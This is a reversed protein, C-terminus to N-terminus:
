WLVASDLHSFGPDLRLKWYTNNTVWSEKGSADTVRRFFRAQHTINNEEMVRRRDRQLQEIQRKQAEAAPVNGEELYRQDPRLRTDTSPLVRRLEPTLENLELAFQTFGYSREHDRPMPDAHLPTPVTLSSAQSPYGGLGPYGGLAPTVGWPPRGPDKSAKWVCHGPAPGRHLGEHWKGALREVATGSRSLVAGQVENAGAGWYRAKCFTLKCHYSADRTNRILVEGYHEIWRPGSLVNHICTTVKNWEYHDGTRPLQVNVTGMPVIELSKGWFKNKWRMDQWFVFNDSEAHCASIPPHHSVQESIFRFGRDPRVCEYTEGLVPNFPKSGARYYTSAYASVAFAAVYVLRQRPDRARSARDLLESYELEECLRQLTNLPENLQVPLAVRSLDKGVSSRLLGWLSVDGSPAPPAPLRSRRRPDPGPLELPPELPPPEAPVGPREAGAPCRATPHLRGRGPSGRGEASSDPLLATGEGPEGRGTNGKGTDPPPAAEAATRGERVPGTAFGGGGAPGMRQGTGEGTSGTGTPPRGPGGPEAAEECVGATVESICSEDESPENESSSASLFVECADFFETHSDALSVISRNSLQQERGKAPLADPEDPHLSAFSDLTTDSSVSLSHFRRLGPQPFPSASGLGGRGTGQLWSPASLPLPCGAGRQSGLLLVGPGGHERVAATGASGPRPAPCQRHLAQRMEELRAREAVLAAVVSSLSGHVKQALVWFSRQLQSYEPPVSFPLQSQSPELYRSLNPVSGHLRGVRGITDDKAFSQTCWIKTARRGKKPRETAASPQSGSILPASPIRHLAELHQLMGTLEQLKAQCESLEASCRELGESDKLWANVKDRSSALTSLAPASGSPLIRTWQGQTSTGTPGGTPCPEPREGHHHTCLSSVWSSFAEPSKIKLHYINDETDLDVRQAKKNVSMVSQRVDIAGHLKGKLVDQRTTSYKLIGNELVFYRKHWGKLPWKRKKLLYGEHRQPQQGPSGRARPEEVVEWSESGQQVSSHKSSVTSSSRSLARKPSCPDKEHSGM